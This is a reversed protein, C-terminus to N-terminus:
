RFATASRASSSADIGEDLRERKRMKACACVLSIVRAHMCKLVCMCVRVHVSMYISNIRASLREEWEGKEREGGERGKAKKQLM